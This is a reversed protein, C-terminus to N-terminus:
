IQDNNRRKIERGMERKEQGPIEFIYKYPTWHARVDMWHVKRRLYQQKTRFHGDEIFQVLKM